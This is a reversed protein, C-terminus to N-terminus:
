KKIVKLELIKITFVFGKCNIIKIKGTFLSKRGFKQIYETIKDSTYNKRKYGSYIKAGSYYTRLGIISEGVEDSADSVGDDICKFTFMFMNTNSVHNLLILPCSETIQIIKGNRLTKSKIRRFKRKLKRAKYTKGEEKLITIDKKYSIIKKLNIHFKSKGCIGKECIENLKGDLYRKGTFLKPDEYDGKDKYTKFTGVEKIEKEKEESIIVFGRTLKDNKFYGKKIIKGEDNTITGKGHKIGNKFGGIYKDGDDETYTGKGNPLDNRWQGKYEMPQNGFIKESVNEGNGKFTGNGHRKGKRWQGEYKSEEDYQYTGKGNKCNGEICKGQANLHISYTIVIFTLIMITIVKKM